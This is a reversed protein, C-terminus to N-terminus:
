YHGTASSALALAHVEKVGSNKLLATCVAFTWGSDVIDDILLVPGILNKVDVSFVGDLNKAQHFSNQQIKQYENGKIKKISDILPVNLKHALRNSFNPILNAHSTSPVFTISQISIEWRQIMALVGELIEEDFYGLKKGESVKSGWGEHAWRSFVKSSDPRLDESFKYRGSLFDYENFVERPIIIPTKFDFESQNIFENANKINELSVDKEILNSGVCSSCKGCSHHQKDDLAIGLYEMLCADTNNYQKMQQLEIVRQQIIEKIKQFPYKFKSPTLYYKKDEVYLPSNEYSELQKLATQIKGKKLNLNKILQSLTFGDHKSLEELIIEIDNASVFANERFFQHIDDDENGSFLIGYAKDISRGARGVEQYYQIVSSPMQFHIVFNLDPKDFGMGLAKTAVVVKIKNDLLKNEILIRKENDLDGHYAESKINNEQLWDNLEIADRITLVYIIGSGSFKPINEILWALRINKQTVGFTQLHLSERLLKGRIVIIDKIQCEIDEIVRDNATATTALISINSPMKNIINSIKKYDPRFDHGWDSICHAEDIVLLGIKKSIPILVEQMFEENALREPAILLADVKNSLTKDKIEDWDKKNSSNITEVTLNLNKASFIQNRILSLLPSIIITPGYKKERLLKTCIFYVSSKGWGTRQVLLLRTGLNTVKDIADWQNDRFEAQNNKLSKRLLKLALDYNSM